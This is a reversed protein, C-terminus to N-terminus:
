CRARGRADGRSGVRKRGHMLRALTRSFIERVEM